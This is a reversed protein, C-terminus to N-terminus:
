IIEGESLVRVCVNLPYVENHGRSGRWVAVQEKVREVKAAILIGGLSLEGTASLVVFRQNKKAPPAPQLHRVDVSLLVSRGKSDTTSVPIYDNHPATPQLTLVPKEVVGIRNHFQGRDHEMTIRVLTRSVGEKEIESWFVDSLLYQCQVLTM